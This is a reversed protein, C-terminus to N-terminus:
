RLPVPEDPYLDRWLRTLFKEDSGDAFVAARFLAGDPLRGPDRIAQRLEDKFRTFVPGPDPLRVVEKFDDYAEDYAEPHCYTEIISLLTAFPAEPEYQWFRDSM